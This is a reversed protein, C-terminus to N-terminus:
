PIDIHIISNIHYQCLASVSNPLDSKQKIDNLLPITMVVVYIMSSNSRLFQNLHAVHVFYPSQSLTAELTKGCCRLTATCFFRPFFVIVQVKDHMHLNDFARLIRYAPNARYNQNLISSTPTNQDNQNNTTWKTSKM